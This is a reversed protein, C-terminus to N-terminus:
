SEAEGESDLQRSESLEPGFSDEEESHDGSFLGFFVFRTQSSGMSPERFVFKRLRVVVVDVVLVVAESVFM